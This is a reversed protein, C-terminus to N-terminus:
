VPTRSGAPMTPRRRSTFRWMTVAEELAVCFMTVAAFRAPKSRSVRQDRRELGKWGFVSRYDNADISLRLPGLQTFRDSTAIEDTIRKKGIAARTRAIM